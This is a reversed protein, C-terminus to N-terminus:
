GIIWNEFSSCAGVYTGYIMQARDRKHAQINSKICPLLRILWIDGKFATLM